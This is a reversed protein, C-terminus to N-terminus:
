ARWVSAQAGTKLDYSFVWAPAIAQGQTRWAVEYSMSRGVYMIDAKGPRGDKLYCVTGHSGTLSRGGMTTFAIEVPYKPMRGTKTLPMVNLRVSAGDAPEGGERQIAVRTLGTRLKPAGCTGSLADSLAGEFVHLQEAFAKAESPWAYWDTRSVYTTGAEVDVSLVAKALHDGDTVPLGPVGTVLGELSLPREDRRLLANRRHVEDDLRAHERVIAETTAGLDRSAGMASKDRLFGFLGM